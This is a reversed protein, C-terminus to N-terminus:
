LFVASLYIDNPMDKQLDPTASMEGGTQQNLLALAFATRWLTLKDGVQQASGQASSIAARAHEYKSQALYLAGLHYQARAVYILDTSLWASRLAHQLSQEASTMRGHHLADLGHASLKQAQLAYENEVQPKTQSSCATVLFILGLIFFKNM